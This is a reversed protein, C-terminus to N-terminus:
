GDRRVRSKKRCGPCYTKDDKKSYRGGNHCKPEGPLGPCWVYVREIQAYYAARSKKTM